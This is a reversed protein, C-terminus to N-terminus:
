VGIIARTNKCNLKNLLTKIGYMLGLSIGTVFIYRIIILGLAIFFEPTSNVPIVKATHFLEKFLFVFYWHVFFLSFSYKAIFDMSKNFVVCDKIQTDYHKLYGLIIM